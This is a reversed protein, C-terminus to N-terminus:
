KTRPVSAQDFVKKLVPLMEDFHHIVQDARSQNQGHYGSGQYGICYMGASKASAIGNTSDEIVLCDEPPIDLITATHLYIYPEPKSKEVSQGGVRIKFYDGLGTKELLVDIVIRSSSSAVALPIRNQQIWDLVGTVGPIPELNDMENFYEIIRQNNLDLLEEPSADLHFHDVVKEWMEDAAMGIFPERDKETISVGLEQFIRHEIIKHHHETNILVGDMDFIIAVKKM